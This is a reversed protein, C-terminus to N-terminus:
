QVKSAIARRAEKVRATMATQLWMGDSGLLFFSFGQEQRQPISAAEFCFIGLGTNEPTADVIKQIADDLPSSEGSADLCFALDGPGIFAMDIGPIATIEQAAEMGQPTEIQVAVVIESNAAKAYAPLESGFLSARGPGVGRKGAPPYLAAEAVAQAARASEVRPVIIGAAGSDLASAIHEPRNEPVRVMAKLHWTDAAQILAEQLLRDIPAHEADICIFDLGAQACLEVATPSPIAIFTGVLPERKTVSTKLSNDM